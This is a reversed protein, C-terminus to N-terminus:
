RGEKDSKPRKKEGREGRKERKGRRHPAHHASAGEFAVAVYGSRRGLVLGLISKM